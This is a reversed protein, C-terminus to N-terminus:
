RKRSPAPPAATEMARLVVRIADRAEGARAMAEDFRGADLSRQAQDIREGASGLRARLAAVDLRSASRGSANLGAHVARRDDGVGALVEGAVLQRLLEHADGDHLRVESTTQVIAFLGNPGEENALLEDERRDVLRRAILSSDKLVGMRIAVDFGEDILEVPRNTFHMQVELQPHLLQFDNVLPAVYREGFTTASTLKLVGSPRAHFDGIAQEAARFRPALMESDFELFAVM